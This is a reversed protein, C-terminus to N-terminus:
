TRQGENCIGKAAELLDRFEKEPQFEWDRYQGAATVGSLVLLPRCGARHACEVDTDKDGILFAGAPDFGFERGAEFVMDPRPKRWRDEDWRGTSYYFKRIEFGGAQLVDQIRANIKGLEAPEVLGTAVGQQNSVVYLDFGAADLMRLAQFTWDFIALEEERCVYPDLDVNIVGDRDLFLPKRIM